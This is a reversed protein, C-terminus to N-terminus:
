WKMYSALWGFAPASEFKPAAAMANGVLGPAPEKIPRGWATPATPSAPAQLKRSARRADMEAQNQQRRTERQQELLAQDQQGASTLSGARQQKFPDAAAPVSAIPTAGMVPVPSTRAQRPQRSARPDFSM